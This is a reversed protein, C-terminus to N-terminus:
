CPKGGARNSIAAVYECAIGWETRLTNPQKGLRRSHVAIVLKHHLHQLLIFRFGGGM